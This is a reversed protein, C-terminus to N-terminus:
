RRRPANTPMSAAFFESGPRYEWRFRLNSSVSQDSSSYQLLESVFMQPTFGYDARTRYLRSTFQGAPLDVRNLSISSDLRAGDRDASYDFRGQYSAADSSVGPLKTRAYYGTLNFDQLFGFTGDMGDTQSAGQGVSANSRNSFM